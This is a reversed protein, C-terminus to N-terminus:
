RSDAIGSDQFSCALQSRVILNNVPAGLRYLNVDHRNGRGAVSAKQRCTLSGPGTRWILRESAAAQVSM